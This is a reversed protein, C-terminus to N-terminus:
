GAASVMQTLRQEQSMTVEQLRVEFIMMADAYFFQLRISFVKAYIKQCLFIGKRKVISNETLHNGM